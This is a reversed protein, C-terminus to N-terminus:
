RHWEIFSPCGPATWSNDGDSFRETLWAAVRRQQDTEYDHPKLRCGVDAGKTAYICVQCGHKKM